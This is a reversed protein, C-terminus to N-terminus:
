KWQVKIEVTVQNFCKHVERLNLNFKELLNKYHRSENELIVDPVSNSLNFVLYSKCISGSYKGTRFM